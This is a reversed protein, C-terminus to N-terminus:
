ASGPRPGAPRRCATSCPRRRRQRQLAVVLRVEVGLQVVVGALRHRAVAPHRGAIGHPELGQAGRDDLGTPRGGAGASTGSGRRPGPSASTRMWAAASFGTSSWMQFPCKKSPGGWGGYTIPSSPIPTTSSPSRSAGPCARARPTRAGPSRGRRPRRPTRPRARPARRRLGRTAPTPPRRDAVLEVVGRRGGEAHWHEGRQHAELARLSRARREVTRVHEHRARGAGDPQDRNLERLQQARRAHDRRPPVALPELPRAVSPASAVTSSSSPAPASSSRSRKASAAPPRRSTASSGSQPAGARAAM